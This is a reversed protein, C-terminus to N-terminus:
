EVLRHNSQPLLLTGIVLTVLAVNDIGSQYTIAPHAGANDNKGNVADSV